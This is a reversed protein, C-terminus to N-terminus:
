KFESLEELKIAGEYIAKGVIAGYLGANKLTHLDDLCSVGGSAILEIDPFNKLIKKYLSIAPGKMMGDRSIETCFFRTLDFSKMKKLFDFLTIGGEEMWGKVMISEDRVDAGILFRNIGFGDIWEKLKEPHTAAITGVTCRDAGANLVASVDEGSKVGGGFDIRLSTGAAIDELIKLNTVKKNKAGDLDVLHLYKLGADEFKRAMSLCDDSYIKSQNFDGGTLRVAKGDIIDLAPIIIL